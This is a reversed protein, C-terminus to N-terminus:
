MARPKLDCLGNKSGVYRMIEALMGWEEQRKIWETVWSFANFRGNFANPPTYSHM